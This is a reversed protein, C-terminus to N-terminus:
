PTPARPSWWRAASAEALARAQEVKSSAAIGFTKALTAMEGEHPTLILPADFGDLTARSSCRAACRRRDRDAARRRARGCGSARADRRTGARARRAGRRHAQRRAARRAARQELVVDPPVAPHLRETSLRVAGAGARM